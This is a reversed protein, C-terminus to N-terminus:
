RPATRSESAASKANAGIEAWADEWKRSTIEGFAAQSELPTPLKDRDAPRIMVLVEAHLAKFADYQLHQSSRWDLRHGNRIARRLTQFAQRYVGLARRQEPGLPREAAIRGLVAEVRGEATVARELLSARRDDSPPKAADLMAYNWMKWVAFFEGYQEALVRQMELRGERRKQEMQWRVQWWRGVTWTLGLIISSGLVTFLTSVAHEVLAQTDM